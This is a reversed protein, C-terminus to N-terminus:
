EGPVDRSIDSPHVYVRNRGFKSTPAFIVQFNAGSGGDVVTGREGGVCVCDGAHLDVKRYAAVHLLTPTDLPPGLKRVRVATFPISEWSEHVDQWYVSKAEGASRANVVTRWDTGAVNCEFAFVQPTQDAM